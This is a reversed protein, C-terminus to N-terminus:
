KTCITCTPSKIIGADQNYEWLNCEEEYQYIHDDEQFQKYYKEYASKIEDTYPFIPEKVIFDEYSYIKYYCYCCYGHHCSFTRAILTNTHCISCKDNYIDLKKSSFMHKCHSCLGHNIDYYHKPLLGTKCFEQNSCLEM